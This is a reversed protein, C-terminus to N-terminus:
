DLFEEGKKKNEEEGSGDLYAQLEPENFVITHKCFECTMEVKGQEEIISAVEKKGMSALARLMRNRLDAPDCPGYRLESTTVVEEMTGLDGLVAEAMQKATMGSAIMETTSPLKTITNELATITEDSAFPLMQVLYGGASRVNLNRDISVGVALAGNVQESEALYFTIDDAIEGTVIDVTGSYTERAATNDNLYLAAWDPKTRSVTLAGRGVAAGVNLKGDPRLPPDAKPNQVMGKVLGTNDSVAMLQGLPGDGRFTVQVTENDGKFAGLLGAALIGRGLAATATPATKHRATADAVVSTGEIAVVSVEQNASLVRYISADGPAEVTAAHVALHRARVPHLPKWAKVPRVHFRDSSSSCWINHSTSAASTRMAKCAGALRPSQWAM